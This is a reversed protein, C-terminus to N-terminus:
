FLIFNLFLQKISIICIQNDAFRQIQERNSPFRDLSYLLDNAELLIDYEKFDHLNHSLENSLAVFLEKLHNQQDCVNEFM